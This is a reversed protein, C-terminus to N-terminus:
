EETNAAVTDATAETPANAADPKAAFLKDIEPKVIDWFAEVYDDDNWYKPKFAKDRWYLTIANRDKRFRGKRKLLIQLYSVLKQRLMEASPNGDADVAWGKTLDGTGVLDRVKDKEIVKEEFCKQLWERQIWFKVQEENKDFNGFFRGGPFCERLFYPVYDYYPAHARNSKMYRNPYIVINAKTQGIIFLKSLLQVLENDAPLLEQLLTLDHLEILYPLEKKLTIKREGLMISTINGEKRVKDPHLTCITEKLPTWLSFLTGAKQNGGAWLCDMDNSQQFTKFDPYKTKDEFCQFETYFHIWEGLKCMIPDYILKNINAM